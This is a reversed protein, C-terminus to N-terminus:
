VIKRSFYHQVDRLSQYGLKIIRDHLCLVLTRLTHAPNTHIQWTANAKFLRQHLKFDSIGHRCASRKRGPYALNEKYGLLLAEAVGTSVPDSIYKRLLGLCADRLNEAMSVISKPSAKLLILKGNAVNLIHLIHKRKLYNRYDFDGPNAPGDATSLTTSSIFRDGTKPKQKLRHKPFRVLLNGSAPITKGAQDVLAEVQVIARYFAGKESLAACVKIRFYAQDAFHSYHAPKFDAENGRSRIIGACLLASSILMGTLYRKRYHAANASFLHQVALAALIFALLVLAPFATHPLYNYLIIGAACPILLRAFPIAHWSFM